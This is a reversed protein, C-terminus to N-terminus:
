SLLNWAKILIDRTNRRDRIEKYQLNFLPCIFWIEINWVADVECIFGNSNEGPQTTFTTHLTNFVELNSRPILSVNYTTDPRLNSLRTSSSNGPRTIRQYPSVAISQDTGNEGTSKTPESHVPGFRIDYYGTGALVPRWHLEASTSTIDQVQLRKARIIEPYASSSAYILLVTVLSCLKVLLLGLPIDRLISLETLHSLYCCWLSSHTHTLSHILCVRNPRWAM